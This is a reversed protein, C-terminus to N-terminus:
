GTLGLAWGAAAGLIVVAWPPVAWMTLLLFAVLTVSFDAGSHVSGTWIPSFLAALLLGVVAANVGRLAARVAERHRLTDWFPLLGGVLLFSSAFISVTAIAAGLWGNPFPGEVTGLFAAFTFVPGPMAQTAGYGALFTDQGVWGPSVVSAQLLPLVVHGGGFVLSGAQYFADILAVTHSGSARALWPLGFLLLAFLLLLGAAIARPVRVNLAAPRDARQAERPLAILGAIGGLVIAAIQGLSSPAALAVLTALVAVTARPKDPALSRAMGWVAQAVVAVAVLKLGRLWGAHSVDGIAGIGFGFVTMVVASPLTFGIWAFLMGLPGARLLGIAMGTQSSAPGPMFQCLALLDAFTAETLWKRRTVLEARFYGLHAVPGGFSTCGLRLFVLFVEIAGPLDPRRGSTASDQRVPGLRM